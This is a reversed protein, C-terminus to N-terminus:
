DGQHAMPEGMTTKVAGRLIQVCVAMLLVIQVQEAKNEAKTRSAPYEEMEEILKILWSAHILLSLFALARIAHTHCIGAFGASRKCLRGAM